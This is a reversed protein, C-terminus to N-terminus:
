VVLFRITAWLCVFHLTNDVAIYVPSYFAFGFEREVGKTFMLKDKTRGGIMRSWEEGLSWHDIIWHPIFIVAWIMPNGVQLMLCVAFTYLTVHITCAIVGALDKKAKTVAMWTSQLLYDGILHGLIALALLSGTM